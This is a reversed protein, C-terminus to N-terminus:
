IHILSLSLPMSLRSGTPIHGQFSCLEALIGAVDPASSMTNYFFHYISKKSISPYFDRIDMVLVPYNGVHVQANTIYSRGKVGSHLYDPTAIRALLSAIRTQVEDLELTPSQIERKKKGSKEIFFITYNSNSALSKLESTPKKLIIELKKKTTIKYLASDKLSYSKNKYKIRPKFKHKLKNKTDQM